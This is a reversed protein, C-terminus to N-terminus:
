YRGDAGTSNRQRPVDETAPPSAVVPKRKLQKLKQINAEKLAKGVTARHQRNANALARKLTDVSATPEQLLHRLLLEFHQSLRVITAADFLDASYRMSAALSTQAEIIFLVLDLTAARRELPMSELALGGPNIRLGTAAAEFAPAGQFAVRQAKDLVFMVQCLPPHSLDRPPRLREVLLVTPYDQHELASLVTHRVQDLFTKFTPNGALNARIVVPNTFLGVVGEFEARSRGVMPSGVLLDEQGTHYSLLIQFAALLLMYLTAGHAKAMAKLGSSLEPDLTFDYSAGRYTPIAPRPRDAKLQLVPLQGALQAQWYKWLREGDTSALMEAQWRVYDTYQFDLPPLPAKVGASEAPYLIGLEGLLIALSWFDIVIHHVVLLLIHERASRTFLIVRLLPGRELDFERYAEELLRTNLEEPSWSSCEVEQFNVKQASHVLQIPKGSKAPFTTRLAPHRDVLAQCARRMAPVDIEASIRAAFNVNYVSSEPALQYLFWIGQQNYSLPHSSASRGAKKHLLEALLARKEGPSLGAIRQSTSSM